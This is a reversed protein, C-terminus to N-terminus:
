EIEETVDWNLKFTGLLPTYIDGGLKIQLDYAYKGAVVDYTDEPAVRVRYKYGVIESEEQPDESLESMVNEIFTIGDGISKQFIYDEDSPKRKVSFYMSEITVGDIESITVDFVLTDGRTLEIDKKIM